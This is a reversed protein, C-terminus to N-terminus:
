SPEIVHTKNVTCSGCCAIGREGCLANCEDNTVGCETCPGYQPKPPTATAWDPLPMKLLGLLYQKATVEDDFQKPDEQYRCIWWATSSGQWARGIFRGNLTVVAEFTDVSVKFEPLSM